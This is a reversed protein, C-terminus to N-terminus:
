FRGRLQVGAQTPSLEFHLQIARAQRQREFHTFDLTLLTAGILTAALGSAILPTAYPAFLQGELVLDAPLPASLVLAVAAMTLGGGVFALGTAGVPGIPAVGEDVVRALREHRPDVAPGERPAEAPAPEAAVQTEAELQTDAGPDEDPDPALEAGPEGAHLILAIALIPSLM